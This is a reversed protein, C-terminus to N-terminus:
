DAVILGARTMKEILDTIDRRLTAEDTEYEHVLRQVVSEIDGQETLLRWMKTGIQDLGYYHDNKMSLFVAEDGLEQFLIDQALQFGNNHEPV